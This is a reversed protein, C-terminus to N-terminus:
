PSRSPSPSPASGPAARAARPEPVTGLRGQGEGPQVSSMTVLSWEGTKAVKSTPTVDCNTGLLPLSSPVPDTGVPVWGAGASGRQAERLGRCCGRAGPRCRTPSCRPSRSFRWGCCTSCRTGSRSGPPHPPVVPPTGPTPVGARPQLQAGREGTRDGCLSLPAPLVVGLAAVHGAEEPHAPRGLLQGHYAGCGAPGEVM